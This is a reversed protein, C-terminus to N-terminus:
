EYKKILEINQKEINSLMSTVDNYQGKYWSQQSFYSKMEPTEFIYGHRAYIENRMIKLDYRSFSTLDSPSLLVQSAQQYLGNISAENGIGTRYKEELKFFEDQDLITKCNFLIQSSPSNQSSTLDVRLVSKEKLNLKISVSQGKIKFFSTYSGDNNNVIKEAEIEGNSNIIYDNFEDSHGWNIDFFLKNNNRKISISYYIDLQCENNWEGEYMLPLDISNNQLLSLSDQQKKLEARVKAEIESASPGCGILALLPLLSLLKKM